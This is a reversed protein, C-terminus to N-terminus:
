TSVEFCKDGFEDNKQRCGLFREPSGLRRLLTVRLVASVPETRM